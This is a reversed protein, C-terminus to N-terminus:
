LIKLEELLRRNRSIESDWDRESGLILISRFTPEPLLDHPYVRGSSTVAIRLDRLEDEEHAAAQLARHRALVRAQQYKLLRPALAVSAAARLDALIAEQAFIGARVVIADDELQSIQKGRDLRRPAATGAKLLTVAAAVESPVDSSIPNSAPGATTAAGNKRLRERLASAHRDNPRSQLLGEIRITDLQRQIGALGDILFRLTADAEAYQPNADLRGIGLKEQIKAIRAVEASARQSAATYVADDAKARTATMMLRESM